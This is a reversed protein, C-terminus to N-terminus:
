NVLASFQPHTVIQQLLEQVAPAFANAVNKCASFADFSTRFSYNIAVSYGPSRNSSVTMALKWHAPSVSSFSLESIRGDISVPADPAYVQAMFLEEQFADQIYQAPSRGPAVIVPGMLRCLPNEEVGPAITISGLNVKSGSTGLAQQIAIVNSTSAKYPIPNTTSCGSIFLMLSVWFVCAITKKHM